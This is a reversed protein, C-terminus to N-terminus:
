FIVACWVNLDAQACVFIVFMYIPAIPGLLLAGNLDMDIYTEKM